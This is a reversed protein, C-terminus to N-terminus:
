SGSRQQDEFEERFAALRERLHRVAYHKRALLTNVSEGSREALERFSLGDFEHAIFVERQAAPLEALAAELEELLVERTYRAEPGEDERAPLLDEWRADSEDDTPPRAEFQRRTARRRFFDTIRNRAVRYLWAGVQEIPRLLQDTEVLEGLVEQLVDDADAPDPLRRRIFGALREREQAVAESIRRNQERTMSEVAVATM